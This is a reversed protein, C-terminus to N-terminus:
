GRESRPRAPGSDRQSARLNDNFRRVNAEAQSPKDVQEGRVAADRPIVGSSKYAAMGRGAQKSNRGPVVYETGFEDTAIAHYGFQRGLNGKQM